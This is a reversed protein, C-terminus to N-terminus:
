ARLDIRTGVRRRDPQQLLEARARAAEQGARAAVALDQSSPRAPALAARRVQEMKAVTAAPDGPEPSSDLQVEGAVVYRRGDPGQAYRFSPGGRVLGGGAAAHATEHARVERDRRRLEAIVVAM